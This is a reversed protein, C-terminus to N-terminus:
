GELFERRLVEREEQPIDHWRVGRLAGEIAYLKNVCAEGRLQLRRCTEMAGLSRLEEPSAVGHERLLSELTPGINPLDSLRM